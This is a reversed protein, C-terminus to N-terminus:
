PVDGALAQAHARDVLEALYARREAYTMSAVAMVQPGDLRLRRDMLSHLVRFQDDFSVEGTELQKPPYTGSV